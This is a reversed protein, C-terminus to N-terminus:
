LLEIVPINLNVCLIYHPSRLRIFEGGNVDDDDSGHNDDNHDNQPDGRFLACRICRLQFKIALDHGYIFEVFSSSVFFIFTFVHMCSDIRYIRLSTIDQRQSNVQNSRTNTPTPQEPEARRIFIIPVFCAWMNFTHVLVEFIPLGKLYGRRGITDAADFSKNDNAARIFVIYATISFLRM